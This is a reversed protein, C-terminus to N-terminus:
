EMEGIIDSLRELFETPVERHRADMATWLADLELRIAGLSPAPKMAEIADAMVVALGDSPGVRDMRRNVRVAERVLDPITADSDPPFNVYSILHQRLEEKTNIM